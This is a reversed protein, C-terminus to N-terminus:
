EEEKEDKDGNSTLTKSGAEFGFYEEVIKTHKPDAEYEIGWDKWRVVRGLIVVEKQSM